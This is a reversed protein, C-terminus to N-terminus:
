NDTMIKISLSSSTAEVEKELYDLNNNLVGLKSFDQDTSSLTYQPLHVLSVNKNSRNKRNRVVNYQQEMEAYFRNQENLKKELDHTVRLCPDIRRLAKDQKSIVERLSYAKYELKIIESIRFPYRVLFYLNIGFLIFFSLFIFYPITLNRIPAKSNPVILLVYGKKLKKRISKKTALWSERIVDTM